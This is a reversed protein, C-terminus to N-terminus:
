QRSGADYREREQGGDGPLGLQQAVREALHAVGRGHSGLDCDRQQLAAVLVDKSMSQGIAAGIDPV